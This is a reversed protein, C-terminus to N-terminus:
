HKDIYKPPSKDSENESEKINRLSDNAIQEGYSSESGFRMVEVKDHPSNLSNLDSAGKVVEFKAKKMSVQGSEEM